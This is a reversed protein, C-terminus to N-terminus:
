GCRQLGKHISTVGEVDDGILSWSRQNVVRIPMSVHLYNLWDCSLLGSERGIM